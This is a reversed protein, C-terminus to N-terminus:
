ALNGFPHRRIETFADRYVCETFTYFHAASTAAISRRFSDISHL